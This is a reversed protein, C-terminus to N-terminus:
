QHRRKPLSLTQINATLYKPLETEHLLGFITLIMQQLIDSYLMTQFDAHVDTNSRM